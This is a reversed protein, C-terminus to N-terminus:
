LKYALIFGKKKIHKYFIIKIYINKKKKKFIFHEKVLPGIKVKKRDQRVHNGWTKSLKRM